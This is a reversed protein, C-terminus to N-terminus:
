TPCLLRGGKRRNCAAHAPQCNDYCHLGGRSLPMVHDVEFKGAILEGCIGCRGGHAQFVVTPDVHEIFADRKRARRNFQTRRNVEPHAKQWRDKTARARVPDPRDLGQQYRDAMYSAHRAKVESKAVYRRGIVRRAEGNEQTWKKAQRKSCAKCRGSLTHPRNQRIYFDGAGKTEGCAPCRKSTPFDIM